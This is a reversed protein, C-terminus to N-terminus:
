TPEPTAAATTPAVELTRSEVAGAQKRLAATWIAMALAIAGATLFQGTNHVFPYVLGAVIPGAVRALSGLGHYLGFVAGQEDASAMRSILASSTPQQFSRGAANVAGALLLVAVALGAAPLFATATFLIMGAAVLIPGVVALKWEGVKKVIRGLLGGQVVVIVLGVWAFFLGSGLKEFGFHNKLFLVVTSEMMVFAAMICFSIALFQALVPNRLIPTFRAPHLWAEAETPKRVRVDRLRAWCLVAAVLSMAAAVYAPLSVNFHGLVGGLAPGISFGLGFAAGLMGMARARNQPTTVDGVYAQATSINGGSFGDIVRSLYVLLLTHRPFLPAVGLLVYGAASGVQSLALVPRRGFRDSMLGLVPAGLFQCISYISFLLTVKLPNHEYGPVYHPLLPIIIGFGLLDILVILFIVGM